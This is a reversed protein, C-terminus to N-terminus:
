LYSYMELIIQTIFTMMKKAYRQDFNLLKSKLCSSSTKNTIQPRLSNISNYRNNPFNLLLEYWSLIVVIGRPSM